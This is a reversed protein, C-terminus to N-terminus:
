VRYDNRMRQKSKSLVVEKASQMIEKEEDTAIVFLKIRGRKQSIIADGRANAEFDPVIGFKEMGELVAERVKPAHEGVGGSFVIADVDELLAMYAGIYKKIRRIYIALATKVAEDDRCLIERMDNTGCLGRLGSRKNLTDEVEDVGMGLEKQMYFVIGPDIDGSRSGMVLGELPTFGMSTDISKGKSIACASAGNGLHLTILNTEKPSKELMEAARKLLYSHSSGHFGYRRIHAEELFKSEIAYTYAEKPMTAHFATDFVAVQPISSHHKLFYEIAAVNYPNHLPALFHLAKLEEINYKDIRTPKIFRSGGQVVRHAVFELRKTEIRELLSRLALAHDEVEEKLLHLVCKEDEFVSLKISSSGSNIVLSRM